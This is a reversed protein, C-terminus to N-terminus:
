VGDRRRAETDGQNGKERPDLRDRLADGLLNLTLVSIFIALGPFLTLTPADLLHNKGDSLMNGWSPVPPQVGLGLFSLSSEALIMGAFGFSTQVILAPLMNPLLHRFLIRTSSAGLSRAANVFEYERLKLVLGRALRAYSVWGILVLALIVNRLSPGLVAMLGIALLVGPFSLLVDGTRMVIEDLWGGQMGSVTGLGVGVLLCLSVVSLSVLFSIRGGFLLRSAIDRGLEDTGLWHERSPSQLRHALDIQNTSESAILPAFLSLLIQAALVLVCAFILNAPKM